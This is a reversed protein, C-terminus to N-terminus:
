PKGMGDGDIPAEYGVRVPLRVRNPYRMPRPATAMARRDWYFTNRYNLYNNTLGVGVPVRDAPDTDPVPASARYEVREKAGLPDTAELWRDQGSEGKEFRSVGYPTTLTTM